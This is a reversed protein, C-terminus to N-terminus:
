RFATPDTSTSDTRESISEKPRSARRTGASSGWMDSYAAGYKPRLSNILPNVPLAPITIIVWSDDNSNVSPRYWLCASISSLGEHVSIFCPSLSTGVGVSYRAVRGLPATTPMSGRTCAAVAKFIIWFLNVSFPISVLVKVDCGTSWTHPSRRGGLGAPRNRSCGRIYAPLLTVVFIASILAFIASFPATASTAHANSSIAYKNLKRELSTAHLGM